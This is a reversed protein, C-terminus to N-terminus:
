WRLLLIRLRAFLEERTPAQVLMDDVKKMLWELGQVVADTRINFEDSSSNLEMPAVMYRM